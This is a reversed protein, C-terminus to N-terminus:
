NQSGPPPGNVIQFLEGHATSSQRSVMECGNRFLFIPSLGWFDEGQDGSKAGVLTSWRKPSLGGFGKNWGRVKPSVAGVAKLPCVEFTRAGIGPRQVLWRRDGKSPCVGLSQEWGRVKRSFVGVAKLPCVGFDEDRDGRKAGVLTSWRKPSLGWVRTGM